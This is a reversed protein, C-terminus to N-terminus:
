PTVKRCVKIVGLLLVAYYLSENKYYYGQFMLVFKSKMGPVWNMHVEHNEFIPSWSIKELWIPFRMLVGQINENQSLPSYPVCSKWM